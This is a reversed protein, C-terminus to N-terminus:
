GISIEEGARAKRENTWLEAPIPYGNEALLSLFSRAARSLTKGTQYFLHYDIVLDFKEVNLKVLSGRKLEESVAIYPLATVGFGSAVLRKTAELNSITVSGSHIDYGAVERFWSSLKVRARAGRERLVFPTSMLQDLTIIGDVLALPADPASVVVYPERHLFVRTLQPPTLARGAVGLEIEGNIINELIQHSNAIRIDFEVRPFRKNFSGIFRTLFYTGMVASAGFGLKGAQLGSVDQFVNQVEDFLDFLRRTYSFLVDGESTLSIRRHSRDFLRVKLATELAQIQMSIAPQTLFLEQAARTFSGAVAVRHFAKLHDLNMTIGCEQIQSM